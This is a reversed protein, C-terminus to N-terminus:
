GRETEHVKAMEELNPRAQHLKNMWNYVSITQKDRAFHYTYPGDGYRKDELAKIEGSLISEALAQGCWLDESHPFPSILGQYRRAKPTLEEMKPIIKEVVIKAAKRSLWSASGQIFSSINTCAYPKGLEGVVAGIYDYGEYNDKAIEPADIYTDGDIKLIMDYDHALMWELIAKVKYVLGDKGDPIGALQVIDPKAIPEGEGIFFKLDGLKHIDQGWTERALDHLGQYEFSHCTYMGVLIKM